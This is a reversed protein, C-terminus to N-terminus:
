KQMPTHNPPTALRALNGGIHFLNQMAVIKAHIHPKSLTALRVLNGGFHRKKCQAKNKCPAHNPSTQWHAVNGGVHKKANCNTGTAVHARKKPKDPM